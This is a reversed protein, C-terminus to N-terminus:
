RLKWRWKFLLSFVILGLLFVPLWGRLWVPGFPIIEPRQWRGDEHVMSFMHDSYWAGFGLNDHDVQALRSQPARTISLTSLM